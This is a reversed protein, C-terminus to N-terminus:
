HAYDDITASRQITALDDWNGDPKPAYKKITQHFAAFQGEHWLPIYPLQAHIRATAMVWDERALLEDLEADVFRGRNFGNPPFSGSGFVKNYIEPTRIGVWTLGFVQFQGQKVDEFFTGWDLSRIELDIGAPKMQAQLITAFRIRQADTSTKYILKIPLGMGAQELLQRALMPNYDYSQLRANGAYHEPPLISGAVRTNEVMVKQILAERDIAHAIAQRVKFKSLLPDQMNLGLYSFNAGPTSAVVLEPKSEIYKILEPPLDGQLLDVEGRILKLVRVTPDKVESITIIQGDVVRKLTLQHQWSVFKLPGSGIPERSFDHQKIILDRPLIGIILKEPFHVDPQKLQFILINEDVVEINIINAFEAAHPSDKLAIISDYTAKVDGATLLGQHHFATRTPNLTFQYTTPSVTQWTALSPIPRSAKDFDVLSQYILRNIRESAADAAFRPDLNLPVQSIALRIPQSQLPEHDSDSLGCTSLLFGVAFLSIFFRFAEM